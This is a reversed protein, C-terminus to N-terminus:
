ALLISSYATVMHGLNCLARGIVADSVTGTSIEAPYHFYTGEGRNKSGSVLQRKARWRGWQEQKVFRGYQNHEAVSGGGIARTGRWARIRSFLM